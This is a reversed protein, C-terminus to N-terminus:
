TAALEWVRCSLQSSGVVQSNQRSMWVAVPLTLTYPKVDWEVCLLDNRPHNKCALCWCHWLVLPIWNTMFILSSDWWFWEVMNCYYLEICGGRSNSRYTSSMNLTSCVTFMTDCLGASCNQYYERKVELCDGYSPHQSASPLPVAVPLYEKCHKHSFLRMVDSCASM